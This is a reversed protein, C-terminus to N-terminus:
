KRQLRGSPERSIGWFVSREVLFHFTLWLYIETVRASSSVLYLAATQAAPQEARVTLCSRAAGSGTSRPERRRPETRWSAPGSKVSRRARCRPWLDPSPGRERRNSKPATPRYRALVPLPPRASDSGKSSSASKSSGCRTMTTTKMPVPRSMQLRRLCLKSNLFILRSTM